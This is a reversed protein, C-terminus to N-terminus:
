RHNGHGVFLRQSSPLSPVPISWTGSTSRDTRTVSRPEARILCSKPSQRSAWPKPWIRAPGCWECSWPCPRAADGSPTAQRPFHILEQLVHLPRPLLDAIGWGIRRVVQRLPQNPRRVLNTGLSHPPGPRLRRRLHQAMRVQGAEDSALSPYAVQPLHDLNGPFPSSQCGWFSGCDKPRNSALCSPQELSGFRTCIPM